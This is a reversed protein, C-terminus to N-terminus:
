YRKLSIHSMVMAAGTSSYKPILHLIRLFSSSVRGRWIGRQVRMEIIIVAKLLQM